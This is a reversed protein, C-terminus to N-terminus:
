GARGPDPGASRSASTRLDPAVVDAHDELVRQGDSLGVIVIPSWIPSLTRRWWPAELFSLWAAGEFDQLHDLHGVGLLAEVGVGVLKGAAESLADHDGHREHARGLEEDGVLGRGREVDGDLGLDEVEQVPEAALQVHRDDQDGVVHAHDGLPGVADEDHVGPADGLARARGLEEGGHAM